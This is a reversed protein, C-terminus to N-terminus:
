IKEPDRSGTLIELANLLEELITYKAVFEPEGFGDNIYYLTQEPISYMYEFSDFCFEFNNDTHRTFGAERLAKATIAM